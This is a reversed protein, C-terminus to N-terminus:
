GLVLVNSTYTEGNAMFHVVQARIALGPPLLLGPVTLDFPPAVSIGTAVVLLLQCGPAWPLTVQQPQFGFLYFVPWGPQPNQWPRYYLLASGGVNRDHRLRGGCEPGAVTIPSLPAFHADIRATFHDSSFPSTLCLGEHWLRVNRPAPGVAFPFELLLEFPPNLPQTLQYEWTGDADVDVKFKGFGYGAGGSPLSYGRVCLLGDTAQPTQFCLLLDADTAMRGGLSTLGQAASAELHFGAMGAGLGTMPRSSLHAMASGSHTQLQLIGGPVPGAPTVARQLTSAYDHAECTVQQLATVQLTAQALLGAAPLAAALISRTTAPLM